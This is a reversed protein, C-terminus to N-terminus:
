ASLGDLTERNLFSEGPIRPRVGAVYNWSLVTAFSLETVLWSFSCLEEKKQTFAYLPKCFLSPVHFM